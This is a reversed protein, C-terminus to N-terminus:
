VLFAVIEALEVSTELKVAQAGTEKMVRVCNAYAAENGGEYSGFPMDVVVLARRSGRVVAQGHLIMMDLTVGVTNPLGHVAM